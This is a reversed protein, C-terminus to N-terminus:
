AGRKGARWRLFYAALVAIAALLALYFGAEFNATTEFQGV